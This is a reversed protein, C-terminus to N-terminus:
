RQGNQPWNSAVFESDSRVITSDPAAVELDVGDGDEGVLRGARLVRQARGVRGGAHGVGRGVREEVEVRDEELVLGLLARGAERVVLELREGLLDADVALRGDLLADVVHLELRPHLIGGVPCQGLRHRVGVSGDIVPVGVTRTFPWCYPPESSSGCSNWANTSWAVLAVNLSESDVGVGVGM